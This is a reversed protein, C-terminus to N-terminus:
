CSTLCVAPDYFVHFRAALVWAVFVLAAFAAFDTLRSKM